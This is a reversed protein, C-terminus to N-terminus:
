VPDPHSQGPRVEVGLSIGLVGGPIHRGNPFLKQPDRNQISYNKENKGKNANNGNHDKFLIDSNYRDKWAGLHYRAKPLSFASTGSTM